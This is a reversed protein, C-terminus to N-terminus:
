RGQPESNNFFCFLTDDIQRRYAQSDETSWLVPNGVTRSYAKLFVNRTCLPVFIGSKDHELLTSRKVAFVANKYSRNTGSDLLTLNGLGHEPETSNEEFHALLAGDIEEFSEAEGQRREGKAALYTEIRTALNIDGEKDAAKFYALCHRLWENQEHVADPRSSSVSRIHEIDWRERKFSDFQFRVNSRSDSLLSTLNFLLLLNRLKTAGIAYTADGCFESIEEMLENPSVDELSQGFLAKFIRERLAKSFEQKPLDLSQAMLAAITSLNGRGGQQLIFGIVHFLERDEYWEELSMFIDRVLKWEYEASNERLRDSFHFFVSYPKGDFLGDDQATALYNALRFVLDIRSGGGSDENQLFYWFADDQLRKEIQDWEYAIRLAMNETAEDHRARRLFLARILEAETLPIKGVNLRTFAAVPDDEAALEYWIVRVNPGTQGDSLLHQVLTLVHSGDRDSCWADIAQWAECIHYFDPNEGARDLDIEALFSPDRTEFDIVYRQKRMINLIDRNYSLLIFITTLRQQGDVVEYSGDNRRRVVLPQLCYFSGDHSKNSTQIFDWLDDLLQTVQTETWRYGRQYPPIWYRAPNGDDGVLLENVSKLRIETNPQPM